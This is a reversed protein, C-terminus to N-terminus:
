STLTETIFSLGPAHGKHLVVGCTCLVYHKHNECVVELPVMISFPDVLDKLLMSDHYISRTYESQLFQQTM